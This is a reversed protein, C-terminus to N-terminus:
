PENKYFAVTTCRRNTSHLVDEEGRIRKPQVSYPDIHKRVQGFFRLLLMSLGIREGSRRLMHFM